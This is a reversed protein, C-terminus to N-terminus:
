PAIEGTSCVRKMSLTEICNFESTPRNFKMYFRSLTFPVRATSSSVTTTIRLYRGNESITFRHIVILGDPLVLHSVLQNGDWGCIETGYDSTTGKAIGDYFECLMAFDDKRAISIEYDNQTIDLIDPRTIMEALRALALISNVDRQSISTTPNGLRTDNPFRQAAKRNLRYFIDALVGNLDDGRTYDREWSGSFNVPMVGEYTRITDDLVRQPTCAALLVCLVLMTLLRSM